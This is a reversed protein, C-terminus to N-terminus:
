AIICDHRNIFDSLVGWFVLYLRLLFINIGLSNYFVMYEKKYPNSFFLKKLYILCQQMKIEVVIGVLNSLNIFCLGHGMM